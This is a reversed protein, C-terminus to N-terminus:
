CPSLPEVEEHSRHLEFAARLDADVPDVSMDRRLFPLAISFLTWDLQQALRFVVIFRRLFVSMFHLTPLRERM